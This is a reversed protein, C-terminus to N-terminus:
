ARVGLPRGQLDGVRLVLILPRAGGSTESSVALAKREDYLPQFLRCLSFIFRGRLALLKAQKEVKHGCLSNHSKSSEPRAPYRPLLRFAALLELLYLPSPTLSLPLSDATFCLFLVVLTNLAFGAAQRWQAPVPANTIVIAAACGVHDREDAGPAM